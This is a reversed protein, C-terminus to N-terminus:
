DVDCRQILMEYIDAYSRSMQDMTFHANFRERAAAGYLKTKDPNNRLFIMAEALATSSNADVVLGTEEHLNVFSTGTGIECSIMPKGFM